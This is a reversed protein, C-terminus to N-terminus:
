LDPVQPESATLAVSVGTDENTVPGLKVNTSYRM